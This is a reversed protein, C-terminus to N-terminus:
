TSGDSDYGTQEPEDDSDTNSDEKRYKMDTGEPNYNDMKIHLQAALRDAAHRTQIEEQKKRQEDVLKISEEISIMKTSNFQYHPLNVASEDAVRSQAPNTQGDTSNMDMRVVYRHHPFVVSSYKEFTDVASSSETQMQNEQQQKFRSKCKYHDPLKNIDSIKLTSSPKFVTRKERQDAKLIVRKYSNVYTGSENSNHNEKGAHETSVAIREFERSLDDAIDMMDQEKEVCAHGDATHPTITSKDRLSEFASPKVVAVPQTSPAINSSETRQNILHTLKQIFKKIKEGKDPLNAVFQTKLLIKQQRQLLEKLEPLTKEDLNGLYGQKERAAM